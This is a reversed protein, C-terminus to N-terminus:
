YPVRVEVFHEDFKASKRFRELEKPTLAAEIDQTIEDLGEADALLVRGRAKEKLREWLPRYPFEWKQDEATARHVPIMAVLEPSEMLELGKGRMTANHSGHHGVKYFVTRALLDAGTVERREGDADKVTWSREQWSLWNGVQADGPFLLVPGGDGLEFALALCTNNTYSDLHLALDGALSLWDDDIRRWAQDPADYTERFFEQGRAADSPIRYRRLFPVARECADHNPDTASLFGAFAAFSPHGEDYTERKSLRKKIWDPDEPPGLVYVRVNEVGELRLPAKQPNCYLNPARGLIYKWTSSTTEAMGVGGSFQLLNTISEKFRALPTGPDPTMKSLALEVADKSKKFERKLAKAAASKPDETWAVWVKEIEMADFEARADSFGSIHDWHEHTVAVVDLRDKTLTRVNKVFEIASEPAYHRSKLAGCDILMHFAGGARPFSVLFCDGLGQRYMRITVQRKAM